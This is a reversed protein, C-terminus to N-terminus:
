FLKGNKRIEIRRIVNDLYIRHNGKKIFPRGSPMYYVKHKRFNWKHKSNTYCCIFDCNEKYKDIEDPEYFNIGFDYLFSYVGIPEKDTYRDYMPKM